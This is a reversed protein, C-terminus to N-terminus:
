TEDLSRQNYLWPVSNKMNIFTLFLFTSCRLCITKITEISLLNVKSILKDLYSNARPKLYHTFM